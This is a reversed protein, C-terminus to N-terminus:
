YVVRPKKSAFGTIAAKKGKLRLIEFTGRLQGAMVCVCVLLCLLVCVCWHDNVLTGTTEAWCPVNQEGGDSLCGALM